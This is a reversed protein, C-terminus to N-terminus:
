VKMGMGVIKERILSQVEPDRMLMNMVNDSEKRMELEKERKEELEMATKIDLIGACKHCFKSDYNNLTDCKLCKKPKLSSEKKDEEKGKIGNLALISNDIEKGSLHVYTSPMDSGQIWGFYQNMQFETLHNALYTARSHRFLHPNYKKKIGAKSFLTQLMKRVTSYYMVQSNKRVGINIWLPNDPDDSFSHNEIWTALYPTSSIIRIKRAGTKGFVNIVVGYEDFTINKIRMSLIEGVRCGSEYLVSILAKDRPNNAVKILSKIDDETILGNESPLKLQNRNIGAKIWKVEIPYEDDTDRLWKYFKKIVVKYGHKTWATYDREQIVAVLREIDRKHVKDFDKELILAIGKLAYMLKLIRSKTLGDSICHDKFRLLIKKNRDSIESKSIMGVIKEFRLEIKYPDIKEM